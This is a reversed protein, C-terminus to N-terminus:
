CNILNIRGQLFTLCYNVELVGANSIGLKNVEDRLLFALHNGSEVHTLGLTHLCSNASSM